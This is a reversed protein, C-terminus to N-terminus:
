VARALTCASVPGAGAKRLAKACENITTGTTFVDDILLIRRGRIAAPQRVAFSRRLNTLRAARSLESQPPTPYTRILNDYSLPLNLRRALHDALLLAQNFERERLRDPHLPVPMVLDYDQPDIRRSLLLSALPRALVVKRQYKFLHIADKLPSDYRYCSWAKSFAPPRRHCDGCVLTPAFQAAVPSGFPCGCRPCEPQTMPKLQSWCAQCMFPIPDGDLPADCIMCRVPLLLHSVRRAAEALAFPM